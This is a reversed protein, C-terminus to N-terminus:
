RVRKLYGKPNFTMLFKERSPDVAFNDNTRLFTEVAEYPGPGFSPYAPHGNINTDEVILYSNLTVLPAFLKLEKEVHSQSHDSDLIVMRCSDRRGEMIRSVLEADDSSGTVYTIRPHTPRDYDNRIDISIIEGKGIADLVHAMFLASGGSHTGTELILDPRTESIIEQYVWMDLPCKLCPYNMWRTQDFLPGKGQPGHYYLSHFAEVTEKEKDTMDESGSGFSENACQSDREHFIEM